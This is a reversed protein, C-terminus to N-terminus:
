KVSLSKTKPTPPDAASRMPGKVIVGDEKDALIRRMRRLELLERIEEDDFEDVAEAKSESDAEALMKSEILMKPTKTVRLLSNNVTIFLDCFTPATPQTASSLTIQLDAPALPVFANRIVWFSIYQRDSTSGATCLNSAGGTASLQQNRWMNALTFGAGLTSVGLSSTLLSSAGVCVYQINILEGTSILNNNPFQIIGGTIISTGINSMSNGAPLFPTIAAVTGFPGNAASITGAGAATWSYHESLYDAGIATTVRPKILEVEYTVWLEGITVGSIQMGSTAIQFNGLDYFRRDAGAPVAGSRIYHNSLVNDQKACEVPHLFSQSPKASTTFQYNEMEVKSAFPANLSNYETSMIVVGTSSTTSAFSEGSTSKFEFIMGHIRYEEYNQALASLWPFTGAQGPNLGYSTNVFAVSGVVDNIFERHCVMNTRKGNRFTPPQTGLGPVLSNGALKYDGSGTITGPSLGWYKSGALASAIKGALGGVTAGAFGALPGGLATGAAGGAASLASRWFGGSGKSARPAAARPARTKTRSLAARMRALQTTSGLKKRRQYPM